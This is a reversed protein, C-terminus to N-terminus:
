PGRDYGARRASNDSLSHVSLSDHGPLKEGPPQSGVVAAGHQNNRTSATGTRWRLLQQLLRGFSQSTGNETEDEHAQDIDERVARIAPLKRNDRASRKHAFDRGAALA